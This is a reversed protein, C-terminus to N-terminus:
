FLFLCAMVAHHTGSMIPRSATVADLFVANHIGTVLYLCFWSYCVARMAEGSMSEVHSGFLGLFAHKKQIGNYLAKFFMRNNSWCLNVIAGSYYHGWHSVQKYTQNYKSPTVELTSRYCWYRRDTPHQSLVLLMRTTRHQSLVLVMRNTPAAIAGNYVNWM